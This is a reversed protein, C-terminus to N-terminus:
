WGAGQCAVVEFLHPLDGLELEKAVEFQVGVQVIKVKQIAELAVDLSKGQVLNELGPQRHYGICEKARIM